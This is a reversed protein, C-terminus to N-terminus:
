SLTAAFAALLRDVDDDQVDGMVAIRFIADGLNGQGAYIVFGATKLADHLAAYTHGPPLRYATLLASSEHAPLLPEVGLEILASRIRGTLTRYRANRAQWGGQDALERLAEELAFCAHVAQTFPSFGARQPEVYRFLDLYVSPAERVPTALLREDVLVFCVGPVAHLCKNATAAV